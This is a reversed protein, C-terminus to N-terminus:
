NLCYAYVTLETAIDVAYGSATWGNNTRKDVYPSIGDPVIGDNVLPPAEWGGGIVKGTSCTATATGNEGVPITTKSTVQSITGLESADIPLTKKVQKKAQKKGQKKAIKKVQKKDSKSLSTTAVEAVASGGLGVFLAIVAIILVPSPRGLKFRTM